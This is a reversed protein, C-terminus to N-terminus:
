VMAKLIEIINDVDFAMGDGVAWEKRNREEDDFLVGEPYQVVTSKPTGYPVIKIEDFEVAGLHKALWKTKTETVRANYEESGCKSLWSVIGVHYGINQLHNIIKGLERMDVLSKAERYPKTHENELSNLWNTVAYLDAITGDMDFYIAKM